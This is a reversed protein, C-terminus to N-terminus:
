KTMIAMLKRMVRYVGFSESPATRAIKSQGCASPMPPPSSNRGLKQLAAYECVKSVTYINKAVVAFTQERRMRGRVSM